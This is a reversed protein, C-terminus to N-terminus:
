RRVEIANAHALLGETRALVEVDIALRQYGKRDIKQVSIRKVFDGTSL